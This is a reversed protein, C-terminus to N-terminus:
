NREDIKYNEPYLIKPLTIELYSVRPQLSLNPQQRLKEKQYKMTLIYFYLLSGYALKIDQFKGSNM